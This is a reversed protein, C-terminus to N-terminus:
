RTSNENSLCALLEVCLMLAAAAVGLHIKQGDAHENRNRLSHIANLLVYTDKMTCRAKADFGICSGTLLQLVGLQKSRESPIEFNDSGMMETVIKRTNHNSKTWYNVTDQPLKKASDCERTWIIDLAKDRIGTLGNLASEPDSNLFNIAFEVYRYLREDFRPIQSLRRKLVEPINNRYDEWSGFLRAISGSESGNNELYHDLFRCTPLLKRGSVVAFGKEELTRRDSSNIDAAEAEKKVLARRLDQASPSCDLWVDKIIEEISQNMIAQATQNVHDNTIEGSKHEELLANLLWFLLPPNGGSWNLLETKAGATFSDNPLTALVSNLDEATFPSIRVCDGFINWFDSTVSKEDRILERLNRRTATVLRLSSKLCLERLNDWLNRTLTGATLPKDFGDWLMLIRKEEAALMDLISAIEANFDSQVKSLHEGYDAEGADMLGEAMKQALTQLFEEDTRPTKHRLDWKIVTIYPMGAEPMRSALATLITSKGMYRASVLSRHSPTKKTLERILDNLIKERGLMQPPEPTCVPFHFETM